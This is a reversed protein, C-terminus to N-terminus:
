SSTWCERIKFLTKPILQPTTDDIQRLSVVSVVQSRPYCDNGFIQCTLHCGISINSCPSSLSISILDDSFFVNMPVVTHTVNPIPSVSVRPYIDSNYMDFIYVRDPWM